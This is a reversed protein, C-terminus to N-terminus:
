STVNVWRWPEEIYKKWTETFAILEAGELIRHDGSWSVPVKLVAKTGGNQIQNENFEWISKNEEKIGNKLNWEIQWNARGIACIAVGGNPPLIPFANISEGLGGISSITINATTTTSLKNPKKRISNIENTITLLNTFPSLPPLSPTLLGYKPDSVAIGIIGDRSIQLWKKDAEEKLNSRMIPHEELALLLSKVMFSLLTTKQKQHKEQNSPDRVLDTPIDSAIYGNNTTSNSSSPNAAKMYPILPTLNLTHSYGFHPIKSQEGLAKFMIKRTRGFEVKTIEPIEDRSIKSNRTELERPDENNDNKAYNELDLKTIRGNEGTGEINSLNINLRSALTRISPSTKIILKQDKGASNIRRNEIQGQAQPIKIKPPSPLISAEGSLQIPDYDIDHSDDEIDLPHKNRSQESSQTEDKKKELIETMKEAKEVEENSAKENIINTEREQIEKDNSEIISEDGFNDMSQDEENTHIDCLVQGVKVIEGASRKIGKVKGNAHSTLEVVSKDSQVECLADFENVEQGETVYWKIIEVETIGEGIDHLKFPSVALNPANFHFSRISTIATNRVNIHDPQHKLTKRHPIFSAQPTLAKPTVFRPRLRIM